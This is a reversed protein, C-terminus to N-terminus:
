PRLQRKTRPPWTKSQKITKMSELITAFKGGTLKDYFKQDFAKLDVKYADIYPLLEKLPEQEIYGCSVVLTKLGKAKALKATDLMFEYGIIPENYTFALSRSGSQLAATVIEEPTAYNDKIEYPYSSALEWNQCFLCRMNCGSESISFATTGPLVHFFPKKEVPDVHASTIRGYVMSYLMGGINKRAKCKGYEGDALLCRNPCLKCRVMKGLLKQYYLAEHLPVQKDFRLIQERQIVFFVAVAIVSVFLALAFFVRLIRSM